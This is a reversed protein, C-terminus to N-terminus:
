KNKKKIIENIRDYKINKAREGDNNYFKIDHERKVKEGVHKYMM